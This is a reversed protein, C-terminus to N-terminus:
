RGRRHKDANPCTVFHSTHRSPDFDEDDEEVTDADVPMSRGAATPLFIIRANCSRCHKIRREHRETKEGDDALDEFSM